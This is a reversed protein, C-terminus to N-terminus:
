SCSQKHDEGTERRWGIDTVAALAGQYIENDDFFPNIGVITYARSGDKKIFEFDFHECIGQMPSQIFRASQEAGLADTFDYLHRGMMEEVEYGLIEAM